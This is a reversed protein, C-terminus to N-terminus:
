RYLAFEVEINEGFETSPTGDDFDVGIVSRGAAFRDHVVAVAHWFRPDDPDGELRLVVVPADSVVQVLYAAPGRIPILSM